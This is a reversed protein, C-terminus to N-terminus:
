ANQQNEKQTVNEPNGIVLQKTRNTDMKQTMCEVDLVLLLWYAFVDSLNQTLQKTTSKEQAM